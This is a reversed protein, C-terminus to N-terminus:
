KTGIKGHMHDLFQHILSKPSNVDFGSKIKDKGETHLGISNSRRRITRFHKDIEDSSKPNKTKDEQFGMRNKTETHKGRVFTGDKRKKYIVSRKLKKWEDFGHKDKIQFKGSKDKEFFHSPAFYVFNGDIHKVYELNNILSVGQNHESLNHEGNEETTWMKTGSNSGHAGGTKESNPEWETIENIIDHVQNYAKKYSVPMNESVEHEEAHNKELGSSMFIGHTENDRYHQEIQELVHTSIPPVHVDEGTLKLKAKHERYLSLIDTPSSNEPVLIDSHKLIQKLHVIHDDPSIKTRAKQKNTSLKGESAEIANKMIADATNSYVLKSKFSKLEINIPHKFYVTHEITLDQQGKATQGGLPGITFNWNGKKIKHTQEWFREPLREMGKYKDDHLFISKNKDENIETDEYLFIFKTFRKM